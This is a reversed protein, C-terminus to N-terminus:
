KTKLFKIIFKNNSYISLNLINRDFIQNIDKKSNFYLIFICWFKKKNEKIININM